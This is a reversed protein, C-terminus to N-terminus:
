DPLVSLGVWLRLMLAGAKCLVRFLGRLGPAWSFSHLGEIDLELVLFTGAPWCVLFM